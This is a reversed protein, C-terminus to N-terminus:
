AAKKQFPSFTLRIGMAKLLVRLSELTPNGNESLMKYMSQRNLKTTQALEGPGGHSRAVNRLALLFEETSGSEFAANLYEAANEPDKLLEDLFDDYNGLPM